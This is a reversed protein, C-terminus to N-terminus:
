DVQLKFDQYNNSRKLIDQQLKGIAVSYLNTAYSLKFIYNSLRHVYSCILKKKMNVRLDDDLGSTKALCLILPRLIHFLM